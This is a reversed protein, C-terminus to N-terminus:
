VVTLERGRFSCATRFSAINVTAARLRQPGSWEDTNAPYFEVEQNQATVGAPGAVDDASVRKGSQSSVSSLAGTKGVADKALIYFDVHAVM